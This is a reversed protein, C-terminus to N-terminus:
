SFLCFNYVFYEDFGCITLQYTGINNDISLNIEVGRTPLKNFDKLM